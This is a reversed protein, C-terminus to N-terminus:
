VYSETIIFFIASSIQIIALLIILINKPFFLSGSYM